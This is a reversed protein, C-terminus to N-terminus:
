GRLCTILEVACRLLDLSLFVTRFIWGSLIILFQLTFQLVIIGVLYQPYIPSINPLSQPAFVPLQLILLPCHKYFVLLKHSIILLFHILIIQYETWMDHFETSKRLFYVSRVCSLNLRRMIRGRIM